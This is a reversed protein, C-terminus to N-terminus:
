PKPIKSSSLGVCLLFFIRKFCKCNSHIKQSLKTSGNMKQKQRKANESKWHEINANACFVIEIKKSKISKQQQTYSILLCKAKFYSFGCPLTWTRNNRVRSFFFLFILRFAKMWSNFEISKLWFVIIFFAACMCVTTSTSGSISVLLSYIQALDNQRKRIRVVKVLKRSKKQRGAQSAQRGEMEQERQECVKTMYMFM